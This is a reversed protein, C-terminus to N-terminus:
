PVEVVGNWAGLSALARDALTGWSSAQSSRVSTEMSPSGMGALLALQTARAILFTEPVESVGADTTLLAPRNGGVLKLLAYGPAHRDRLILDRANRDVYWSSRDLPAWEATDDNIAKVDDIWIVNAAIDNAMTLGVSIIATDLEPNALAVRVYTWTDATLAPLSLTELASACNATDDLLLDLDTAVTTTSSKAWFEV